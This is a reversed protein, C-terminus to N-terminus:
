HWFLIGSVVWSLTQEVRLEPSKSTQHLRQCLMLHITSSLPSCCVCGLGSLFSLHRPGGCDERPAHRWHGLSKAEGLPDSCGNGIGSNLSFVCSETSFHSIRLSPKSFGQSSDTTYRHTWLTIDKVICVWQRHYTLHVSSGISFAEPVLGLLMTACHIFGYGCTSVPRSLQSFFQPHPLCLDGKFFSSETVSSSLVRPPFVAEWEKCVSHMNHCGSM